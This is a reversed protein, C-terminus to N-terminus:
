RRNKWNKQIIHAAHNLEQLQVFAAHKMKELRRGAMKM